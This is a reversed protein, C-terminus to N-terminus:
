YLARVLGGDVPVSVGTVYGARESALFAVMSAVEEPQGIRGVPISATDQRVFEEFPVGAAKARSELFSRSRDTLIRGPCVTNITIGQRSIENVLSRSLGAVGPRIANSLLLGDIPQKISTSQINVIRGWGRRRMHPLAERILRVTSLLNLEFAAQFDADTMQDFLGPPPGGANTVLVDLGGFAEVARAVLSRVAEASRVDAAVDLVDAGTELRIAAAARALEEASRACMAVRAGEAALARACARGIGKSAAAVLAAKGALGLDM